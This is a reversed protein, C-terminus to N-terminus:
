KPAAIEFPLEAASVVPEGNVVKPVFWWQALAAVAAEGFEPASASKVKVEQPQGNKGVVCTIVAQGKTKSKPLGEPWVPLSGTLLKANANMSNGARDTAIKTLGSEIADRPMTSNFVEVGKSFVHVEYHDTKAQPPLWFDASLAQEGRLAAPSIEHAVFFKGDVGYGEFGMVIFANPLPSSSSFNAIFRLKKDWRNVSDLSQSEFGAKVIKLTVIAPFYDTDRRLGYIFVNQEGINVRPSPPVVKGNEYGYPTEATMARVRYSGRDPDRLYVAYQARLSALLACTSFLAALGFRLPIMTRANQGSFVGRM